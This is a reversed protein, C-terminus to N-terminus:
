LNLTITNTSRRRIIFIKLIRTVNHTHQLKHDVGARQGLILRTRNPKWVYPVSRQSHIRLSILFLITHIPLWYEYCLVFYKLLFYERFLFSIRWFEFWYLLISMFNIFSGLCTGGRFPLVINSLVRIHSALFRSGEEQVWLFMKRHKTMYKLTGGQYLAISSVLWVDHGAQLWIQNWIVRWVHLKKSPVRVQKFKVRIQM